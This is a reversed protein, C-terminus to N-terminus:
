QVGSADAHVMPPPTLRITYPKFIGVRAVLDEEYKISIGSEYFAHGRAEEPAVGYSSEVADRTMGPVIAGAFGELAQTGVAMVWADDSLGNELASAYVVDVGFEPYPVIYLRRYGFAQPIEGFEERMEAYTMGLRINGISDGPRISILSVTGDDIESEDTDRVEDEDSDTVENDETTDGTDQVSDSIIETNEPSSGSCAALFIILIIPLINTM